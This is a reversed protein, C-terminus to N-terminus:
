EEATDFEFLGTGLLTGSAFQGLSDSLTVNVNTFIGDADVAEGRSNFIIQADSVIVVGNPLTRNLTVEDSQPPDNTDYPLYDCGFTYGSGDDSITFIGRCGITITEAQVRKLDQLLTSRVNLRQLPQSVEAFKPYAVVGVIAMVLMVLVLEMASYGRQDRLRRRSM